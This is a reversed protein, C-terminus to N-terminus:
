RYLLVSTVKSSLQHSPLLQAQIRGGTSFGSVKGLRVIPCAGVGDEPHISYFDVAGGSLFAGRFLYGLANQFDVPFDQM